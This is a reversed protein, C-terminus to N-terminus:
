HAKDETSWRFTAVAGGPLKYSAFRKRWGINFTVPGGSSNLVVLVITGDPNQFAVDEISGQDFTNSEIRRAGPKLFKSVHALATFDV